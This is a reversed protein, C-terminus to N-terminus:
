ASEHQVCGFDSLTKLEAHYDSGDQVFALKGVAEPRLTRKDYDDSWKTASWFQIVAVCTGTGPVEGYDSEPKAWHKCTKCREM